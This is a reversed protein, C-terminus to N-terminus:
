TVGYRNTLWQQVTAVDSASLATEGVTLCQITRTM